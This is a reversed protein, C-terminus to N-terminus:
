GLTLAGIFAAASVGLKQQVLDRHQAYFTANLTLKQAAVWFNVKQAGWSFFLFRRRADVGSVYFAGLALALADNAAKQVAGIQFNGGTKASTHFDFLRITGDDEALAELAKVSERLVALQNQTAIAAIVALAARDMRIEGESQEYRTFALQEGTWGLNELIDIYKKYWSETQTFRNFAGSAGRQAFQVSFLVDDREQSNVGEVFSLLSGADVAAQLDESIPPSVSLPAASSPEGSRTIGRTAELDRIRVPTPALTENSLTLTELYRTISM